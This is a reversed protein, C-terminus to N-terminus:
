MWSLALLSAANAAASLAVAVRGPLGLYRAYIAAEVLVAFLEVASLRVIVSGPLVAMGLWVLPHTALQAALVVSVRARRLVVRVVCLEIVCTALFAGFWLTM